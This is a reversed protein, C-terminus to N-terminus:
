VKLIPVISALREKPVVLNVLADLAMLVCIYCLVVWIPCSTPETSGYPMPALFTYHLVLPFGM